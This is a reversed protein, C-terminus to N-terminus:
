RQLNKAALEVLYAQWLEAQRAGLDFLYTWTYFGSGHGDDFALRVAYNGVPEVGAIAVNKKGPVTIKQSPDHGQVEASPSSVRLFEAPLAFAEGSEFEINLTKGQDALRIATPWHDEGAV